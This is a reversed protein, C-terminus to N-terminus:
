LRFVSPADRMTVLSPFSTAIATSLLPTKGPVTATSLTPQPSQPSFSFFPTAPTIHPQDMTMGEICRRWGFRMGRWRGFGGGDVVM